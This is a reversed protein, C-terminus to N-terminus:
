VHGLYGRAAKRMMLEVSFLDEWTHDSIDINIGHEIPTDNEMTTWRYKLIQVGPFLVKGGFVAGASITWTLKKGQKEFVKAVIYSM